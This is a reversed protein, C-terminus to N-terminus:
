SCDEHIYIGNAVTNFIKDYNMRKLLDDFYRVNGENEVCIIKPRGLMTQLVPYDMGEIDICLLDPVGFKEFLSDLTVVKIPIVKSIKFQPYSKTFNLVTDYDFSNRGSYDDIMYFELEGPVPGIGLNLILDDPRHEQFAKIHNPNAEICVGRHGREYLLATNSIAHPNHAGVDFYRAASGIGLQRFVNLLILDEGFQSYTKDGFAQDPHSM